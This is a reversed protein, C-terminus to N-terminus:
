EKVKEAEERVRGYEEMFMAAILPDHIILINEDNHKDGNGTPNMSGTVVVKHDIIFVKQHMTQNNGDKLVSIGNQNLREFQSSQDITRKEMVGEVTLNDQKKLLLVNAINENTFSFAMFYISQEAKELESQIHEACHDEPCFYNQITTNQVFLLPTQVTRGSKFTGNWLEQFEDEYNQILSPINIVLLNNNNKHADNNTPNASGTFMITHDIICFKDHMEGQKDARTFPTTFKKIYGDDMVIRVDMQAAKTQFIDKLSELNLDYIACHISSQATQLVDAMVKECDDKPCFYLQLTGKEEIGSQTTIKQPEVNIKDIPYYQHLFLALIFILFIITTNRLDRPKIKKLSM